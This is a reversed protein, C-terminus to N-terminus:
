PAPPRGHRPTPADPQRLRVLAAVGILLEFATVTYVALREWVGDPLLTVTTSGSDLVLGLTSLLGVVGLAVCVTGVRALRASRRAALGAVIATLNGGVIAMAAGLGHVAVLGNDANVPGSHVVGVLVIGIGHTLALAVFVRRHSAGLVPAALLAAAVFLVGHLVFGANMVAHLPSDIARGSYTGVEPIGLDSIYNQAYSYGPFASAAVAEAALYVVGAAIWCAAPAIATRLPRVRDDGM